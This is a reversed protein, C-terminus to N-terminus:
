IEKYHGYFCLFMRKGFSYPLEHWVSFLVSVKLLKFLGPDHEGKDMCTIPSLLLITFYVIKTILRIIINKSSNCMMGYWASGRCETCHIM